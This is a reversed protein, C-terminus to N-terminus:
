AGVAIGPDGKRLVRADGVRRTIHKADLHEMLALAYKRSTGFLDRVQAVTVSGESRLHELIHQLMADYTEAGFAVDEGVRVLRGSDVLWQFLDEGIAAVSESVSPPTYPTAAFQQLLGDVASQEKATLRVRHDSARVVGGADVLLGEVMARALLDNFFRPSWPARRGQMRSKLEERPMGLRLPFQGHYGALTSAIRGTLAQWGEASMLSQLEVAGREGEALWERDLVVIQGSAALDQFAGLAVAPELSSARAVQAYSAPEARRLAQLFVGPPDGSQLVQLM